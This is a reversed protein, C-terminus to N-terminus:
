GPHGGMVMYDAMFSSRRCDQSNHRADCTAHETDSRVGRATIHSSAFIEGSRTHAKSRDRICM